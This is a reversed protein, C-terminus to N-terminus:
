KPPLVSSPPTTKYERPPKINEVTTFRAGCKGCERRRNTLNTREDPRSWVVSTNPYSCNQCQM